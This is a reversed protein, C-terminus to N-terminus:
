FRDAWLATLSNTLARLGLIFGPESEYESEDVEGTKGLKDHCLSSVQKEVDDWLDDIVCLQSVKLLHSIRLDALIEDYSAVFEKLSSLDPMEIRTIKTTDRPILLRHKDAFTLNNIKMTSGSIMADNRPDFDGVLNVGKSILGCATEDKFAGSLTTGARGPDCKSAKIQIRELLRDIDGNVQLRSSADIWNLLRGGNGGVYVPTPTKRSLKGESRLVYHVKGLYYYLGCFSVAVLSLFEQLPKQITSPQNVLRDLRGSLLAESGFRMINDLRSTFNKDQRARMEDDNIEATLTPLLDKL